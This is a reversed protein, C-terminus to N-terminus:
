QKITISYKKMMRAVINEIQKEKKVKKWEAYVTPEMSEFDLEPNSTRLLRVFHDGYGSEIPGHWLNEGELSALKSWFLSGFYKQIENRTVDQFYYGHLFPDGAIRHYRDPVNQPVSVENLRAREARNNDSTSQYDQFYVHFFSFRKPLTFQTRNDYYYQELEQRTPQSPEAMGDILFEMKKILRRRVFEDGVDLRHHLAERYLVEEKIHQQIEITLEDTSPLRGNKSAFSEKLVNKFEHEIVIPSEEPSTMLVSYLTKGFYLVFGFLLFHFLPDSGWSKVRLRM